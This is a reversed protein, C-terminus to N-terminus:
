NESLLLGIQLASDKFTKIAVPLQDRIRVGAVVHAYSGEGLRAGVKYLAQFEELLRGTTRRGQAITRLVLWDPKSSSGDLCAQCGVQFVGGV